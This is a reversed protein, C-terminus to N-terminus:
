NFWCLKLSAVLYIYTCEEESDSTACEDLADPDDSEDYEGADDGIVALKLDELIKLKAQIVNM